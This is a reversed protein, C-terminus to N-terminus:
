KVCTTVQNSYQAGSVAVIATIHRIGGGLLLGNKSTDVTKQPHYNQHCINKNKHASFVALRSELL